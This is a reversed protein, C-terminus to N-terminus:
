EAKVAGYRSNGKSVEIAEWGARFIVPLMLIAAAPDAWWLGRWANLGLGLFLSLSLYTGVAAQIGFTRLAKRELTKAMRFQYYAVLPMIVLLSLSLLLGTISAAPKERYFLHSGCENLIYLALLFFAIGVIFLAHREAPAHEAVDRQVHREKWLGRLLMAAYVSQLINQLGFGKLSISGAMVGATLAIGAAILYLGATASGLQMAKRFLTTRDTGHSM